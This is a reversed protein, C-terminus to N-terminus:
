LVILSHHVNTFAVHTASTPLVTIDGRVVIYADNQDCLNSKLVETNYIAEHGVDYNANSQDNVLNWKRREYRSDSAENLLNFMKQHEM